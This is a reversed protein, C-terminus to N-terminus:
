FYKEEIISSNTADNYNLLYTKSIRERILEYNKGTFETDTSLILVQDSISSVIKDIFLSRTAGDLRALPTDFVFMERRGSAKFMAWIICSVLIQREGASLASVDFPRNGSYLRLSFDNDIIIESLYNSKRVTENFKECTMVSLAKLKDATIHAILDNIIKISDSCILYSKSVSRERRCVELMNEYRKIMMGVERNLDDIHGDLDLQNNKLTSLMEALQGIEVIIEDLRSTSSSNELTSRLQLMNGVLSNKGELIARVTFIKEYTSQVLKELDVIDDEKLGFLMKEDDSKLKNIYVSFDEHMYRQVQELMTAYIKPLEKRSRETINKLENLVICYPLFDEYFERLVRNNDESLKELNKVENKLNISQTKSIGGLRIFENQLSDVRTKIDKIENDTERKRERALALTSKKNNIDILLSTLDFDASANLKDKETNLYTTLDERFQNLIDINFISNFMNQIYGNTRNSDIIRGITEGDFIFSNILEPSTVARLKCIFEMCDSDNLLTGDKIVKVNEVLGNNNKDWTRLIIYENKELKEVLEITIRISYEKNVAHYSLLSEVEKFYSMNETKYGYAFCGYLGIKIAKLITTKGAGNQGGILIINKSNSTNFDIKHRGSYPGINQLQLEKIKM